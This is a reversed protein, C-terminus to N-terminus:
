PRAELLADLRDLIPAFAAAGGAGLAEALRGLTERTAASVGLPASRISDGETIEAFYQPEDSVYRGPSFAYGSRDLIGIMRVLADRDAVLRESDSDTGSVRFAAGTTVLLQNGPRPVGEGLGVLISLEM